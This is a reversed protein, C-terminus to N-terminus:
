PSTRPCPVALGCRVGRPKAMGMLLRVTSTKGSGNPGLFGYIAGEPVTLDLDQIAFSKGPKWNLGESKSLM